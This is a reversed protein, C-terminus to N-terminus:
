PKLHAHLRLEASKVSPRSAQKRFKQFEYNYLKLYTNQSLETVTKHSCQLPVYLKKNELNKRLIKEYKKFFYKEIEYKM